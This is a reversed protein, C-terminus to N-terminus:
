SRIFIWKLLFKAHSNTKDHAFIIQFFNESEFITDLTSNKDQNKQYFYIYNTLTILNM